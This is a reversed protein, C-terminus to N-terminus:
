GAVVRTGGQRAVQPPRNAHTGRIPTGNQGQSTHLGMVGSAILFPVRPSAFGPQWSKRSSLNMGFRSSVRFPASLTGLTAWAFCLCHLPRTQPALGKGPPKKPGLRSHCVTGTVFQSLVERQLPHFAKRSTDPYEYPFYEQQMGLPTPALTIEQANEEWSIHKVVEDM